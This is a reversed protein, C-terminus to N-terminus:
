LFIMILEYHVHLLLAQYRGGLFTEMSWTRIGCRNFRQLM